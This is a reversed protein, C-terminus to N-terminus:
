VWEREFMRKGYREAQRETLHERAIGPRRPRHLSVPLSREDREQEHQEEEDDQHHQQAYRAQRERQVEGKALYLLKSWTYPVGEKETGREVWGGVVEGVRRQVERDLAAWERRGPASGAQMALRAQGIQRLALILTHPPSTTRISPVLACHSEDGENDSM